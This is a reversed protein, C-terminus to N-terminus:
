FFLTHAMLAIVPLTIATRLLFIVAMEGLGLPIRSKLILVGIESVYILQTLSLCGIVFRTLESEVGVLLVAPLFMDAFGVLTAPAARAAEPLQLWELVPVMPYALWDFLPTFEAVVLAATGIAMVMPMLTLYLDAINMLSGRLLTRAGPAERARERAAELAERVMGAGPTEVEPAQRGVAEHYTDEKWSLPPIRPLIVAAVLSAVAMTLYFPVFMHDLGIFGAVVLAFAVSTLSFNAAIVASERGSYFGRDYQQATIIVGISAAGMWSASADIASRGPLGFLWRFPRRALTGVFEMLGYEVLFPLLLLAFFFFPILVPILDNLMVGGTTEGALFGPGAGTLTLLGFAFGAVRLTLGWSGTRFIAAWGPALDWRPGAWRAAATGGAAVGLILVAFAPLYAETVEQARSALFGVGVTLTDGVPFPVLFAAIGVLTPGAFRFLGESRSHTMSSRRAFGSSPLALARPPLEGPGESVPACSLAPRNAPGLAPARRRYPVHRLPEPRAVKRLETRLSAPDM